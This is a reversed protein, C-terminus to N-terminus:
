KKTRERNQEVLRIGLHEVFPIHIGFESRPSM